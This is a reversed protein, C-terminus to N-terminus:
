LVSEGALLNNYKQLLLYNDAYSAMVGRYIETFPNRIFTIPNAMHNQMAHKKLKRTQM